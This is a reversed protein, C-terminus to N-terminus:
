PRYLPPTIVKFSGGVKKVDYEFEKQSPLEEDEAGCCPGLEFLTGGATMFQIVFRYVENDLRESSLVKIRMCTGTASCYDELLRVRDNTDAGDSFSALVEWEDSNLQIFESAEDFKNRRALDFFDVLVQQAAKTEDPTTIEVKPQEENEEPEVTKVPEPRVEQPVPEPELGPESASPVIAAPQGCGSFLLVAAGTLIIASIGKM